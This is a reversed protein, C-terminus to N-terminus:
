RGLAAKFVAITAARIDAHESLVKIEPNDRNLFPLGTENGTLLFDNIAVKYTRAPDLPARETVWHGVMWNGDSAQYVGATQLFGGTGKNAIGQDLVKRLLAGKMEVSWIKGGFPLVRIVDYETMPGPPIVDDIRISGGNYIALETGPAAALMAEAILKSLNTPRNRVSAERGDLPEKVESVKASPEFGDKRFADFAIKVWKDVEAKVKPDEPIDPTLGQLTSKMALKRSAPNFAFEHVFASRANADAKYIGPLSGIELRHHEHEHGGIIM